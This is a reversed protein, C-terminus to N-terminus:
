DGIIEYDLKLWDHVGYGAAQCHAITAIRLADDNGPRDINVTQEGTRRLIMGTAPIGWIGGIKLADLVMKQWEVHEKRLQIHNHTM